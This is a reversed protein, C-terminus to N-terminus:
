RDDYMDKRQVNDALNSSIHKKVESEGAGLAKEMDLYHIRWTGRIIYNSVAEVMGGAKYYLRTAAVLIDRKYGMNLIKDLEKAADKHYKNVWYSKGDGGKAKHPVECDIIFQILPDPQGPGVIPLKSKPDVKLVERVAKTIDPLAEPPKFLTTYDIEALEREFKNTVVLKGDIPIVYHNSVLIEVAQKFSENM